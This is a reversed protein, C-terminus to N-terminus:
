CAGCAQTQADCSLPAGSSCTLACSAAGMCSAACDGLCTVDCTRNGSCEVVGGDGVTITCVGTGTCSVVCGTGCRLDCDSGGACSLSCADGCECATADDCLLEGATTAGEGNRDGVDVILPACAIACALSLTLLPLWSRLM